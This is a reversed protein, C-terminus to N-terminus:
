HDPLGRTVCALFVNGTIVLDTELVIVLCVDPSVHWFLMKLLQTLCWFSHKWLSLCAPRQHFLGPLFAYGNVSPSPFFVPGSFSSM